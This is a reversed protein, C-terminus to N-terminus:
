LPLHLDALFSTFYKLIVIRTWDRLEEMLTYSTYAECGLLGNEFYRSGRKWLSDQHGAGREPLKLVRTKSVRVAVPLSFKEYHSRITEWIKISSTKLPSVISLLTFTTLHPCILLSSLESENVARTEFVCSSLSGLLIENVHLNFENECSHNQLLGRRSLSM